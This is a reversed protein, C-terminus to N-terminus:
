TNSAFFGLPPKSGLLHYNTSNIPLGLGDLLGRWQLMAKDQPNSNSNRNCNLHTHFYVIDTSSIRESLVM